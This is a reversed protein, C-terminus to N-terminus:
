SVPKNITWKFKNPSVFALCLTHWLQHASITTSGESQTM